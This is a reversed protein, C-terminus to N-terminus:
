AKKGRLRMLAGGGTMLGLAIIVFIGIGDAGTFPLV